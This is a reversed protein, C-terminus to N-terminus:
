RRTSATSLNSSLLSKSSPISARGEGVVVFPAWYSPHTELDQSGLILGAMARRMAEARGIGPFANLNAFATRILKVTADSDVAWHSVLLTRAGAYFFARALGSLAEGGLNDGAATNCASLVVWDADLRLTSIESATLFGDDRELAKVDTTGKPPPTLILGPEASGQVQGTLAGHTAFHVIAYDALKGQESLEKLMTETARGGLLIDREPVGFCRGVECVEDATEPLPTLLRVEEIDANSGRFLKAFGAIPHTAAFAIRRSLTKSCHQKDRADGALKAYREDPGDLLPNGIGLYPKTAHSAKAFQRLAKLSAVSPLVTIPQHAGLWAVRRYDALKIFYPAGDQAVRKGLTASLTKEEGGRSLRVRVTVGPLRSQIAMVFDKVTSVEKGDLSLLIDGPALGAIASPGGEIPKLVRVGRGEAFGLNGAEEKSLDQIDLGLWGEYRLKPVGVPVTAAMTQLDTVLVNFPLSTLPGSPVILLHKDKIMDKIPGFLTQYLDHARAIDFPLVQVEQEREKIKIAETFPETKLFELCYNRRAIQTAKEQKQQEATEPWWSADYWSTSDLGCRLATVHASLAMTGLEVRVWRADNRTIVWIFSEEPTPQMEWTDLFLLLVEDAGLMAQIETIALPEPNALAAYEPFDKVLIRDIEGVRADITALRTSLAIEAASNRKEPQQSQASILAKDRMRWEGLLDQRERVLRALAGDGKAQRAAMQAVAAAAESSQAWQATKFMDHALQPPQAKDAEALRHTSKILGRFRYSERDAESKGEGVLATKVTGTERRLRRIILDTSQHWYWAATKWDRQAFSLVALNNLSQGVDPHDAGLVKKRIALVRKLLPEADTYRGQTQYLVALNNLSQGVDPHDPGFAKERIALARKYLPEADSYRGQTQFLVGLNNLSLGVDPHDLGFAKEPIALARKYLPEADSYRGQTQFLLTLNNLSQGVDPHDPGFTKERIALARKYLPEADAYRGQVRYIEALNNLSYGV